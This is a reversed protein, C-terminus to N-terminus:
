LNWKGSWPEFETPLWCSVAQAIARCNSDVYYGLCIKKLMVVNRM